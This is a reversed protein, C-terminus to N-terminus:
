KTSRQQRVLLYSANGHPDPYIVCDWGAWMFQGCLKHLREERRALFSDYAGRVLSSTTSSEYGIGVFGEEGEWFTFGETNATYGIRANRYKESVRHGQKKVFNRAQAKSKWETITEM